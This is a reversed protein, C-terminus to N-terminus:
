SVCLRYEAPTGTFVIDDPSILHYRIDDGQAIAINYLPAIYREGGQLREIATDLTTEYLARFRAASRFHYLGTSCLNSIRVKETVRKVAYARTVDPSVQVFSWHEGHGEFVELYGDCSTVDFAQPHAFRHHHSDINFITLPGDLAMHSQDLGKYVTEAQGETPDSLVVVEARTLGLAALETEIFSPTGAVNRCIFLFDETEFYARFGAVSKRLMSGEGLPLMYKPRDYGAKAFRSSLGAMPFVIM